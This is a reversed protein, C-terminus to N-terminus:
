ILGNRVAKGVAQALSVCDLKIRAMKLYSRVTHESLDLAVAIESYSKGHSSFKLCQYERKTLKPANNKSVLAENLAKSHLLPLLTEFEDILPQIYSSWERAAKRSNVTFMGLRARDDSYVFSYGSTGVGFHTLDAWIQGSKEHPSLESWCFSEGELNAKKIVPDIMAYNSTLYRKVWASPYTTRVFPNDVGCCPNKLLNFTTFEHEYREEILSIAEMLSSSLVISELFKDLGSMNGGVFSDESAISSSTGCILTM